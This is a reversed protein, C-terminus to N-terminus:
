QINGLAWYKVFGAKKRKLIYYIVKPPNYSSIDKLCMSKSAFTENKYIM